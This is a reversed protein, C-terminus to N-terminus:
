SSGSSLPTSFVTYHPVIGWIVPHNFWSSHYPHSMDPSCSLHISPESSSVQPFLRCALGLCLHSSLISRWSTPLTAYARGLQNPIPVPLLSRHSCYHVQQNWAIPPNEQGNSSWNVGWSFSEVGQFVCLIYIIQSFYRETCSVCLFAISIKTPWMIQTRYTNVFTWHPYQLYGLLPGIRIWTKHM